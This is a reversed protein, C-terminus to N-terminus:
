NTDAVVTLTFSAVDSPDTVDYSSVALLDNNDKDGALAKEFAAINTPAEAGTAGVSFQDGDDYPVLVPATSADGGVVLLRKEIDAVRVIDSTVGALANASATTAPSVWNFTTAAGTIPALGETDDSTDTPTDNDNITSINAVLAERSGTSKYSYGIRVTGSSDTRRRIPFTSLDTEVAPNSSHNSSMRVYEGRMPRAYQDLVTVTVVNRASGGNTPAALYSAATKVAGSTVKAIADSFVVTQSADSPDAGAAPGTVQTVTYSVRVRDIKNTATDSGDGDANDKDTPDPDAATITFTAKGSADVNYVNTTRGVAETHTVPATVDADTQSNRDNARTVVVRYSAGDAPPGAPDGDSDVLQITVTVTSGFAARNAGMPLDTKATVATAPNAPGETINISALGEGGDEVKDGTEGIWAWVTTGGEAPTGASFPYDGSLGTVPDLADIECTADNSDVPAVRGCSGDDKFAEGVKATDISFRDIQANAEPQFNADRVSVTVEGPAHSQITVGEPRATTHALARTIFAAMAGRSVTASPSFDGGGTGKAVGLEYLTSAASDHIRNQLRRSDAFYDVTGAMDKVGFTGDPGTVVNYPSEDNTAAVLLRAILLAMDGRNVPDSGTEAFDGVVAEADAGAAAAAREMFLVMEERAVDNNPRFTGDSYGNTVKYYALCNIAAWFYHMESVDSFMLDSAAEDVCASTAALANPKSDDDLAAAPSAGVALLSAVLAGTALM